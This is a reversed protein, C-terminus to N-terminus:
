ENAMGEGSDRLMWPEALLLVFLLGALTLLAVALDVDERGTLAFAVLAVVGFRVMGAVVRALLYATSGARLTALVAVSLIQVGFAIGLAILLGRRGEPPLLPLGTAAVAVALVGFSLLFTGMKRTWSGKM